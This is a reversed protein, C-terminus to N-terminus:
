NGDRYDKEFETSIQATSNPRKKGGGLLATCGQACMLCFLLVLLAGRTRIM